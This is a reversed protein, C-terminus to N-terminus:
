FEYFCFVIKNDKKDNRENEKVKIKKNFDFFEFLEDDEYFYYKYENKHFKM